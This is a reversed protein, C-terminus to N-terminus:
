RLLPRLGHLFVQQVVRRGLGVLDLGGAEPLRFRNRVVLGRLSPELVSPDLDQDEGALATAADGCDGRVANGPVFPFATNKEGEGTKMSCLASCMGTRIEKLLGWSIERRSELSAQM